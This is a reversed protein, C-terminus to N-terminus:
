ATALIVDKFLKQSKGETAVGFSMDEAEPNGPAPVYIWRFSGSGSVFAVVGEPGTRGEMDALLSKDMVLLGTAEGPLPLFRPRSNESDSLPTMCGSSSLIVGLSFSALVLSAISSM